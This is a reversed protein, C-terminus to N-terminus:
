GAIVGTVNNTGDSTSKSTGTSLNQGYNIQMTSLPSLQTYVSEYEKRLIKLQNQDTTNAIIIGTYRQGRM